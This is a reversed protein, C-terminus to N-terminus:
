LHHFHHLKHHTGRVSDLRHLHPRLLHLHVSRFRHAPPGLRRPHQCCLRIFDPSFCLSLHVAPNPTHEALSSIAVLCSFVLHMELCHSSTLPHIVYKCWVPQLHRTSWVPSACSGRLRLRSSPSIPCCFAPGSRCTNSARSLTLRPRCRHDGQFCGFMDGFRFAM